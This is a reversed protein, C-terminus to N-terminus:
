SRCFSYVPRVFAAIVPMSTEAIPITESEPLPLIIDFCAVGRSHIVKGQWEVIPAYHGLDFRDSRYDGNSDVRAAPREEIQIGHGEAEGALLFVLSEGAQFGALELTFASESDPVISLRMGDPLPSCVAPTPSPEPTTERPIELQVDSPRQLGIEGLLTALSVPGDDSESAPPQPHYLGDEGLLLYSAAPLNTFALVPRRPGVFEGRAAEYRMPEDGSWWSIERETAFLIVRDGVQLDYDVTGGLQLSETIQVLGNDGPSKGSVTLVATEGLGVQDVIPQLVAVKLQHVPTATITTGEIEQEWYQGSDQNWSTPSIDNVQGVFIADAAAIMQARSLLEYDLIVEVTQGASTPVATPSTVLLDPACAALLLLVAIFAISRVFIRSRMAFRRKGEGHFGSPM